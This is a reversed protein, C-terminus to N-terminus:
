STSCTSSLRAMGSKGNLMFFVFSCRIDHTLNRWTLKLLCGLPAVVTQLAFNAMAVGPVTIGIEDLSNQQCKCTSACSGMDRTEIIREMRECGKM